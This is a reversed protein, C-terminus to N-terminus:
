KAEKEITFIWDDLVLGETIEEVSNGYYTIPPHGQGRVVGVFKVKRGNNIVATNESIWQVM